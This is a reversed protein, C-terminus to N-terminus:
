CPNSDRRPRQSAAKKWPTPGAVRALVGFSSGFGEPGGHGGDLATLAVIDLAPFPEGFTQADEFTEAENIYIQTTAMDSHGCARSVKMPDDGRVARWTAYSHRLDHWVLPRRTEDDALIAVGADACAWELYKRLRPAMDERAPMSTSVRGEGNAMEHMRELLPRLTAEIPVKRTDGTGQHLM